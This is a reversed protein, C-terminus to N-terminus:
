VEQMIMAKFLNTALLSKDANQERSGGPKAILGKWHTDWVLNRIGVEVFTGRGCNEWRM